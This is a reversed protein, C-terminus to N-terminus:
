SKAARYLATKFGGSAIETGSEALALRIEEHTAHELCPEIYPYLAALKAANGRIEALKAAETRLNQMAENKAAEKQEPTYNDQSIRYLAMRLGGLTVTIGADTLAAHIDRLSHSKLCDNIVAYVGRIRATNNGTTEMAQAKLQELATQKEM